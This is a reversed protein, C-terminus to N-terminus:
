AEERPRPVPAPLARRELEVPEGERSPLWRRWWPREERVVVWLRGRALNRLQVFLPRRGPPIRLSWSEGRWRFTAEAAGRPAHTEVFIESELRVTGDPGPPVARYFSPDFPRGARRLQDQEVAWDYVDLGAEGAAVERHHLLEHLITEWLEYAWDFAPDLRSLARFSGHYLVLESRTEGPGGYQSPWEETVCEGLTYVEEIDPHPEIREEVVLAAVGAKMEQPIEEWMEAALERFRALKM